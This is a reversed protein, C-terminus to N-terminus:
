QGGWSWPPAPLRAIPLPGLFVTREQISVPVSLATEEEGAGAASGAGGAGAGAGAGNDSGPGSKGGNGSRRSSRLLMRAAAAIRADIIGQEALKSLTAALGRATISFAGEVEGSVDLALTGDGTLNLPGYALGLRTVEVTGGEERWRNLAQPWPPAGLSGMLRADLDLREIRTGLATALDPPLVTERANVALDFSAIDVGAPRGPDGTSSVEVHGITVPAGGDAAVALNDAFFTGTPLRGTDETVRALLRDGHAVVTPGDPGLSLRQEGALAVEVPAPGGGWGAFVPLSVDTRPSSWRWGAPVVMSGDALTVRLETPFGSRTMAGHEVHWGEAQRQEIWDTVREELTAVAFFWYATFAAIGAVAVVLVVVAVIPLIGGARLRLPDRGDPASTSAFPAKADGDGM